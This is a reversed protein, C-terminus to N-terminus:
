YFRTTSGFMHNYVDDVKWQRIVFDMLDGELEGFEHFAKFLDDGTFTTDVVSGDEYTGHIFHCFVTM